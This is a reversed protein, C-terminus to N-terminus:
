SMTLNSQKLMEYSQNSFRYSYFDVLGFEVKQLLDLLFNM